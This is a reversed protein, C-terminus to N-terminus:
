LTQGDFVPKEFTATTSSRTVHEIGYSDMIADLLNSPNVPKVILSDVLKSSNEDMSIERGYATVLFNKTEALLREQHATQLLELGNMGPMNWDVFVMDFT